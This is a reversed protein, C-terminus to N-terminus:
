AVCRAPYPSFKCGSIINYLIHVETIKSYKSIINFGLVKLVTIFYLWCKYSLKFRYKFETCNFIYIYFMSISDLYLWEHPQMTSTNQFYKQSVFFNSHQCLQFKRQTLGYKLLDFYQGSCHLWSSPFLLTKNRFAQHRCWLNNMKIKSIWLLSTFSGIHNECNQNRLTCKWGNYSLSTIFWLCVHRKLDM